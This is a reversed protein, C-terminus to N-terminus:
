LPFLYRSKLYEIDWYYYYFSLLYLCIDRIVLCYNSIPHRFIISKSMVVILLYHEILTLHKVKISDQLELLGSVSCYVKLSWDSVSINM